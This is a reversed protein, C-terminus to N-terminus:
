RSIARLRLHPRAISQYSKASPGVYDHTRAPLSIDALQRNDATSPRPSSLRPNTLKHSYSDGITSTYQPLEESPQVSPARSSAPSATARYEALEQAISAKALEPDQITLARAKEKRIRERRLNALKQRRQRGRRAKDRSETIRVWLPPM